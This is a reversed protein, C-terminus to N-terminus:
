HSSLIEALIWILVLFGILAALFVSLSFEKNKIISVVGIFFSGVGSIGAILIPIALKLNSFFTNGGREGLNVFLFFIGLFVFFCLILRIAWKGPNSKPSFYIKM